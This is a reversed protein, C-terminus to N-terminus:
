RRGEVKESGPLPLQELRFRAFVQPPDAIIVTIRLRRTLRIADGVRVDCTERTQGRMTEGHTSTRSGSSALPRGAADLLILSSGLRGGPRFMIRRGGSEPQILTVRLSDYQMEPPAPPVPLDNPEDLAEPPAPRRTVIMAAGGPFERRVAKGAPPLELEVVEQRESAPRFLDGEVWLLRTSGVAPAPLWGPGQWEDPFLTKERLTGAGSPGFPSRFPGLLNGRDDLACLNDVGTLSAGEGGPLVARLTLQLLGGVATAGPPSGASASLNRSLQMGAPYVALGQRVFGTEPRLPPVPEGRRFVYVGSGERGPVVGYGAALERMAQALPVQNWVFSLRLEPRSPDEGPAAPPAIDRPPAPGARRRLDGEVSFRVGSVRGLEVLAQSLTANRLSLTIRPNDGAVAAGGLGLCLTLTLPIHPKM